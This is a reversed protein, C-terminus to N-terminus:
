STVTVTISWCYFKILIGYLPYSQYTNFKAFHSEMLIPSTKIQRDSAKSGYARM